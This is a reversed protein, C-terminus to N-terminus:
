CRQEKMLLDQLRINIQYDQLFKKGLDGCGYILIKYKKMIDGSMM